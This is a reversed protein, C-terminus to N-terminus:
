IRDNKSRKLYNSFLSFGCGILMAWMLYFFVQRIFFNRNDAITTDSYYLYQKAPMAYHLLKDLKGKYEKVNDDYIYLDKERGYLDFFAAPMEAFPKMVAQSDNVAHAIKVGTDSALTNKVQVANLLKGDTGTYSINNYMVDVAVWQRLEPSFYENMVHDCGVNGCYNNKIEIARSQLGAQAAFLNFIRGYIGCWIKSGAAAAKYQRFSNLAVVSDNPQGAMPYITKFFYKGIASVKQEASMGEAIKISDRIIHDLATKEEGSIVDDPSAYGRIGALSADAYNNRYMASYANAAIGNRIGSPIYEIRCFLTDPYATSFVRYSHIGDTLKFSPNRATVSVPQASDTIVMWVASNKLSDKLHIVAISDHLFTLNAVPATGVVPYLQRYSLQNTYSFSDRHLFIYVNAAIIIITFFALIKGKM